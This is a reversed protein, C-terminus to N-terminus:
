AFAVFNQGRKAMDSVKRGFATRDLGIGIKAHNPLDIGLRLLAQVIDGPGDFVGILQDQCGVGIALALRDGPVDQLHELLLLRELGLWDFADYEVGDGFLCDRIRHRM